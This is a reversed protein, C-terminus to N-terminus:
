KKVIMASVKLQFVLEITALGGPHMPFYIVVCITGGISAISSLVSGSFVIRVLYRDTKHLRLGRLMHLPIFVLCADCAVSVEVSM